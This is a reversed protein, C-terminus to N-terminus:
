RDFLVAIDLTFDPLQPSTLAEGAHLELEVDFDVSAPSSRRYVLVCNAATDVLWLEPLGTREYVRKKKGIDHRWTSKRVEVALDPPGVLRTADRTPRHEETVWWLDPAFVNHDDLRHDVEINAFGRGVGDRSWLVLAVLIHTALAQHCNLPSNMVVIEGEILERHEETEGEALYDDASVRTLLTMTTSM